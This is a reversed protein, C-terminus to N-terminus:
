AAVLFREWFARGNKNWGHCGFPLRRGALEFWEEPDEAFAFRLGQEYPAVRFPPWYHSARLSWFWDEAWGHYARNMRRIEHRVGNLSRLHKAYRRPLNLWRQRLPM